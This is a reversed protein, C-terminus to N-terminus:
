IWTFASEEKRDYCKTMEENLALKTYERSAEKQIRSWEDSGKASFESHHKVNSQCTKPYVNLKLCKSLFWVKSLSHKEKSLKDSTKHVLKRNGKVNMFNKLKQTASQGTQLNQGLNPPPLQPVNEAEMRVSPSSLDVQVTPSLDPQHTNM